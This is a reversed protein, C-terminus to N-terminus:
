VSAEYKESSNTLLKKKVHCLCYCQIIFLATIM